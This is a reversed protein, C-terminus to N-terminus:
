RSFLGGLLSGLVPALLALPFAGGAQSVLLDRRVHHPVNANGVKYFLKRYKPRRLEDVQDDTTPINKRLINFACNCVFDVEGSSINKLREKRKRASMTHVDRLFGINERLQNGFDSSEM